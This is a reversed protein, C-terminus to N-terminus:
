GIVFIPRARLKNKDIKFGQMSGDNSIKISIGYNSLTKAAALRGGGTSGAEIKIIAGAAIITGDYGIITAGDIAIIEQRFKRDLEQFKRGRILKILAASKASREEYLFEEFQPIDSMNEDLKVFFSQNIKEQQLYDYSDKILVDAIDIHKLVNKSDNSNIHVICGGCRNFSTDLASLYIAKRVDEYEGAHEALKGVIEDHSYCIWVGSKKAFVLSKNKFILVEGENNLCIGIKSGSSLNALELNEYPAYLSYDIARSYYIHDVFFGDASVEIFSNRGDSLLATFDKEFLKSVHLNQNTKSGIKKNNVICGLTTRKGEYTRQSWYNMESLIIGLTKACSNSLSRCISKEIVLNKLGKKYEEKINLDDIKQSEEIISKILNIELSKFPQARKIIIRYNDTRAFKVKIAGGEGQAIINDRTSSEEEGVIESGTFMKLIYDHCFELFRSKVM